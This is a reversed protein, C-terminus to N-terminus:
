QIYKIKKNTLEPESESESNPESKKENFLEELTMDLYKKPISSKLKTNYNKISNIEKQLTGMM